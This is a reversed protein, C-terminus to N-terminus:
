NITINPSSDKVYWPRRSSLTSLIVDLPNSLGPLYNMQNSSIYIFKTIRQCTSKAYESKYLQEYQSFLTIDNPM